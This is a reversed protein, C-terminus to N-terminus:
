QKLRIDADGGCRSCHAYNCVQNFKREPMFGGKPWIRAAGNWDAASPTDM